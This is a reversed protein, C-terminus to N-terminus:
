TVYAGRQAILPHRVFDFGGRPTRRAVCKHPWYQNINLLFFGQFSRCNGTQCKSTKNKDNFHYEAFQFPLIM